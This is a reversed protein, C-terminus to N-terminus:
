FLARLAAPDHRTVLVYDHRGDSWQAYAPVRDAAPAFRVEARRGPTTSLAVYLHLEGQGPRSFCIELVDRGQVRLARCGEQPLQAFEFPLGARLSLEAGRLWTQLRTPERSAMSTHAASTYDAIVGQAFADALRTEVGRPSQWVLLGVVALSAAAALWVSGPRGWWAPARQARAGALIASRLGAPPLIERLRETVIRAHAQERALWAGLTPDTAARALAERMPAEGDTGDGGPRRATLTFKAEDHNM